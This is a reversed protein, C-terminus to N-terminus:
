APHQLQVSGSKCNMPAVWIKVITTKQINRLWLLM